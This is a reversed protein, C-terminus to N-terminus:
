TARDIFAIMNENWPSVIDYRSSEYYKDGIGDDPIRHALLLAWVSAVCPDATKNNRRQWEEIIHGFYDYTEVLSERFQPREGTETFYAIDTSPPLPTPSLRKGTRPRETLEWGAFRRPLDKWSRLPADDYDDDDEFESQSRRENFERLAAVMHRALERSAPHVDSQTVGEALMRIALQDMYEPVPLPQCALAILEDRAKDRDAATLATVEAMRNAADSLGMFRNTLHLLRSDRDDNKSVPQEPFAYPIAWLSDLAIQVESYDCKGTRWRMLADHLDTFDKRLEANLGALRTFTKSNKPRAM